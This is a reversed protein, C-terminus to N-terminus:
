CVTLITAIRIEFGHTPLKAIPNQSKLQSNNSQTSTYLLEKLYLIFCLLFLRKHCSQAEINCEVYLFIIYCFFVIMRHVNNAVFVIWVIVNIDCEAGTSIAIAIRMALGVIM